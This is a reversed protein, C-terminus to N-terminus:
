RTCGGLHTKPTLSVAAGPAIQDGIPRDDLYVSSGDDRLGWPIDTPMTMMEALSQAVADVPMSRQFEVEIADAGTVGHARFRIMPEAAEGRTQTLVETM